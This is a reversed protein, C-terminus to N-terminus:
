FHLLVWFFLLLLFWFSPTTKTLELRKLCEAHQPSNSMIQASLSESYLKYLNFSNYYQRIKWFHQHSIVSIAILGIVCYCSRSPNILISIFNQNLNFFCKCQLPLTITITLSSLFNWSFEVKKTKTRKQNNTQKFRFILKKLMWHNRLM